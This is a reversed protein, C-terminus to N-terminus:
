PGSHLLRHLLWPADCHGIAGLKAQRGSSRPLGTIREAIAADGNHFTNDWVARSSAAQGSVPGDSGTAQAGGPSGPLRKSPSTATATPALPSAKPNLDKVRPRDAPRHQRCFCRRTVGLIALHSAPSRLM